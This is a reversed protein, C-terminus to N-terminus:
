TTADDAEPFSCRATLPNDRVLIPGEPISEWWASAKSGKLRASAREIAAGWRQDGTTPRGDVIGVWRPGESVDVGPAWDYGEEEANLFTNTWTM